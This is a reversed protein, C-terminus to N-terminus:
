SQRMRKPRAVGVPGSEPEKTSEGLTQFGARSGSPRSQRKKAVSSVDPASGYGKGYGGYGGYGYRGGYNYTKRDKKKLGNVVVGALSANVGDLIKRAERANTRVGNRIRMVLYILDSHVSVISPDTVALLPPTDILVFDFEKRLTEVLEPFYDSTLLEAPNHPVSGCPMVWLSDPIIENVAERWGLEGYIAATVGGDNKVGFIKHQVPKRFDADILVVKKGSQAISVALNAITTSKGDGPIPSTVQLVKANSKQAAFFMTTRVSRYAEAAPSSPEHLTVVEKAVGSYRDNTKIRRKDFQNIHGIVTSNLMAAVDDSSHFTKEAFDKLAAFGMGLLGGLLLGGGASIPLSPAAQEAETPPDLITMERWNVEKLAKMESVRDSARHMDEVLRERENTLESYRSVDKSIKSSALQEASIAREIGREESELVEIRNNIYDLFIQVFDLEGNEDLKANASGGRLSNLEQKRLQDAMAIQARISVLKPHDGGYETLLQQEEVKLDVFQRHTTVYSGFSSENLDSLLDMLMNDADSGRSRIQRITEMRAQLSRKERGVEHMDDLLMKLKQSQGFGGSGADSNLWTYLEPRISLADLEEDVELLRNKLNLEVEQLTEMNQGGVEDTSALIYNEFSQVISELIPRCEEKVPGRFHIKMVSSLSKLDASKASLYDDSRCLSYLIDETEEFTKLEDFNGREIAPEVIRASRLIELYKEVPSETIFTEGDSSNLTPTNKEDVVIKAFSEFTKPAKFYYLVGLVTGLLVFFAMLWFKRRVLDLVDLSYMENSPDSQGSTERSNPEFQRM